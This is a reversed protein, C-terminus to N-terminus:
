DVNVVQFRFQFFEIEADLDDFECVICFSSFHNGTCFVAIFKLPGKVALTFLCIFPAHTKIQALAFDHMNPNVFQAIVVVHSASLQACCLFLSVNTNNAVV